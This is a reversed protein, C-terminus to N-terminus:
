LAADPVPESEIRVPLLSRVWERNTWLACGGRTETLNGHNERIASLFPSRLAETLSVRNLNVDSYPAFPCPELGGDPGVHIFGRGAALCGGYQEEDGPFAIFEAPFESRFGVTIRELERKQTESLVWDGSGEEIPIYEVFFFLRCGNRVLPAIFAPDTLDAFNERTVTFSTGYYVGLDGLKRMTERVRQFVGEGRRFDTAPLGGELSFVPILNKQRRIRGIWEDTLLLGNTFVPFLVRKFERTLGIFGPRTFPEGGAIMVISVGLGDAERLIDRWRDLPMDPNKPRSHNNSYCGKCQLNCARTVSGIMLPPVRVGARERRNRRGAALNQRILTLAFFGSQSPNSLTTGVAHKFVRRISSDFMEAATNKMASATLKRRYGQFTDHSIFHNM